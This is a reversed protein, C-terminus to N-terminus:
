SVPYLTAGPATTERVLGQLTKADTAEVAKARVRSTEQDKAGAVVTMDAAGSGTLEKRKAKSKKKRRGAMHTGDAEVGAAQSLAADDLHVHRDTTKIDAVNGAFPSGIADAVQRSLSEM